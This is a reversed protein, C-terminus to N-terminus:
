PQGPLRNSQPGESMIHLQDKGLEAPGSPAFSLVEKLEELLKSRQEKSARGSLGATAILDWWKRPDVASLVPPALWIRRFWARWKRALDKTHPDRMARHAAM